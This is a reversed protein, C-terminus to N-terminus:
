GNMDYRLHIRLRNARNPQGAPGQIHLPEGGERGGERKIKEEREDLLAILIAQFM